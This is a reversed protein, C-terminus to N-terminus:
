WTAGHRVRDSCDESSMNALSQEGVTEAEWGQRQCYEAFTEYRLIGPTLHVNFDKGYETNIKRRIGDWNRTPLAKLLELQDARNELLRHLMELEDQQWRYSRPNLNMRESSGNADAQKIEQEKRICYQSYSEYREVEGTGAVKFEKGREVTIKRRVGDWNRRLFAKVLELQTAGEDLMRNLLEVERPQWKDRVDNRQPGGSLMIRELRKMYNNYTERDKIPKPAITQPFRGKFSLIKNRIMSWTRKPFEAAIELQSAGRELLEILRNSESALWQTYTTGKRPIDVRDSSGDRWKILVRIAKAPLPTIEIRELFVHLVLRQEDLTLNKWNSVAPFYTDRLKLLSQRQAIELDLGALKTQLRSREM